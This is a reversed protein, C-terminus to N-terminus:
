RASSDSRPSEGLVRAAAFRKWPTVRAPKETKQPTRESLPMRAGCWIRKPPQVAHPINVRIVAAMLSVLQIMIMRSKLPTARAVSEGVVCANIALM